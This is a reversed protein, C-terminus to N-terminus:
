NGICACCYNFWLFIYLGHKKTGKAIILAGNSIKLMVHEIRTNYGLGDFMTISLLSRKIKPVYIGWVGQLLLVHNDFM